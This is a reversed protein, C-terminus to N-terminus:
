WGIQTLRAQVEAYAQDLSEPAPLGRDRALEMLRSTGRSLSTPEQLYLPDQFAVEPAVLTWGNNRFLQIVDPLFLANLLTHHLLIVHPVERGLTAKALAQAAEAQTILHDLYASRLSALDRGPHARLGARLREDFFWDFTAITVPTTRYGRKALGSRLSTRAAPTSGEKLYPFRLWPRYGPLPRIVADLRDVDLLFAEPPVREANLHDWTHNGLLHGEQGWRRLAAVGELSDGGDRGNAFLVAQVHAERLAKLLAEQRQPASLRPTPGLGPGDDFSLAVRQAAM